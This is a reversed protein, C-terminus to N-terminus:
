KGQEKARKYAAKTLDIVIKHINNKRMIKIGAETTGGKTAVTSVLDKATIKNQLLLDISGKFTQSVLTKSIDERFGLANSANEFADIINFVFGPGSGSIATAMDIQNENQLLITKGSYSFLKVVENKVKNSVKNNAVVCNMGENILAPMNPMVRFLNKFNRFRKKLISIKKGAVVSILVTQNSLNIKSLDKLANNLDVPKTALVVTNYEAKDNLLSISEIIKINKSKYKQKLKIYKIPDVITLSYKKTKIWSTVLASGMHGCGILLIKKM